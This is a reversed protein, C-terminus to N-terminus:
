FSGKSIYLGGEEEVLKKLANVMDTKCFECTCGKNGHAIQQERFLQLLRKGYGAVSNLKRKEGAMEEEGGKKLKEPVFEINPSYSVKDM